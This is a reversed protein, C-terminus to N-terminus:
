ELYKNRLASIEESTIGFRRELLNEATGYDRKIEDFIDTLYKEDVGLLVYVSKRVNKDRFKFPLILKMQRIEKRSTQGTLLYDKIIEKEPVGLASLLLMAMVGARDKGASCHWLVAGPKEDLLIDFFQRVFPIVREGFLIKRYMEGFIKGPEAPENRFMGLWSELSYEDRAIGFISEDLVSLNVYEVGPVEVDPDANIEANIRFDVISRLAYRNKLLEIDEPAANGLHGCRILLDHKIHKGDAAPLGGLERANKIKRFKIKRDNM